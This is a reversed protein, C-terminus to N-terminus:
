ARSEVTKRPAHLCHATLSEARLTTDSVGLAGLLADRTLLTGLRSGYVGVYNAVYTMGSGVLLTSHGWRLPEEETRMLLAGWGACWARRRPRGSAIDAAAVEQQPRHAAGAVLKAKARRLYAEPAGRTASGRGTRTRAPAGDELCRTCGGGDDGGGGRARGRTASGCSAGRWVKVALRALQVANDLVSSVCSVASPWLCADREAEERRRLAAPTAATEAVELSAALEEASHPEVM